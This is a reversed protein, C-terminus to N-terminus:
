ALAYWVAGVLLIIGYLSMMVFTGARQLRVRDDYEFGFARRVSIRLLLLKTGVHLWFLISAGIALVLGAVLILADWGTAHKGTITM